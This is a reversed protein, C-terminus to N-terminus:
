TFFESSTRNQEHTLNLNGSQLKSFENKTKLIFVRYKMSVQFRKNSHQNLENLRLLQLPGRCQSLNCKMKTKDKM